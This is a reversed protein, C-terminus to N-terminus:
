NLMTNCWIYKNGNKNQCGRVSTQFANRRYYLTRQCMSDAAAEKECALLCGWLLRMHPECWEGRLKDRKNFACRSSNGTCCCPQSGESDEWRCVLEAQQFGVIFELAIKKIRVSLRVMMEQISSMKGWVEFQAVSIHLNWYQDIKCINIYTFHFM